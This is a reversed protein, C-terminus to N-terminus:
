GRQAPHINRRDRRNGGLRPPLGGAPFIAVLALGALALLSIRLSHLRAV